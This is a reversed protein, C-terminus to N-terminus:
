DIYIKGSKNKQEYFDDEEYADFFSDKKKPIKRKGGVKMFDSFFAPYSKKVSDDSDVISEGDSFAAAISLAMAIRHDGFDFAEGGDLSGSGNIYLDDGIAEIDAGLSTLADCVQHLRDSERYFTVGCNELRSKGKAFCALVALMPVLHPIEACDVDIPSTRNRSVSVFNEAQIVNAGFDSLINILRRETQSSASYLNDVTVGDGLAGAVLYPASLSYDGEVSFNGADYGKAPVTIKRADSDFVTEVGFHKQVFSVPNIYGRFPVEDSLFIECKKQLYPLAIMIGSLFQPSTSTPVTIRSAEFRGRISIIENDKKYIEIGTNEFITEFESVSRKPLDGTGFFSADLGLIAALPVAFRLTAGSRKCQFDIHKDKNLNALGKGNVILDNGDYEVIVGLQTLCSITAKVDDSVGANSIRCEGGALAACFLAKHAMSKSPPAKIIGSIKSPQIYMKTMAIGGRLCCIM